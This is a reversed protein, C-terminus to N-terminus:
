CALSLAGLTALGVFCTVVLVRSISFVADPSGLVHDGPRAEFLKYGLVPIRREIQGVPDQLASLVGFIGHLVCEHPGEPCKVCDRSSGAM